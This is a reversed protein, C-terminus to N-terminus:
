PLVQSTQTCLAVLPGGEGLTLEEATENKDGTKKLVRNKVRM